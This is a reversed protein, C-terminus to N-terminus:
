AVTLFRTTSRPTPTNMLRIRPDGRTDLRAARHATLAVPDASARPTRARAVPPAEGAASHSAHSSQANCRAPEGAFCNASTCCRGCGRCAPSVPRGRGSLPFRSGRKVSGAQVYQGKLRSRSVNLMQHAGGRPLPSVHQRRAIAPPQIGLHQPRGALRTSSVEDLASAVPQIISLLDASPKERSRRTAPTSRVTHALIDGNGRCPPGISPQQPSRSRM